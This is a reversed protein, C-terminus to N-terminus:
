RNIFGKPYHERAMSNVNGSLNYYKDYDKNNTLTM